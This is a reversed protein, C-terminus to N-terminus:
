KPPFPVSPVKQPGEVQGLPPVQEEEGLFVRGRTYVFLWHVHGCYHNCLRQSLFGGTGSVNSGFEGKTYSHISPLCRQEM